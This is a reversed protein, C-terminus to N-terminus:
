LGTESCNQQLALKQTKILEHENKTFKNALSYRRFHMFDYFMDPSLFTM